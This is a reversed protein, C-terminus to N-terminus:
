RMGSSGKVKARKLQDEWLLRQCSNEPWDKKVYNTHDEVITQLLAHQDKKVVVSETEMMSCVRDKLRKIQKQLKHVTKSLNQVRQSHEDQTLTSFKVRSSASTCSSQKEHNKLHWERSRLSPRISQCSTCLSSYCDQLFLDCGMSHVSEDEIFAVVQKNNM